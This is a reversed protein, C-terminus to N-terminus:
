FSVKILEHNFFKVSKFREPLGISFYSISCRISNKGHQLISHLYQYM